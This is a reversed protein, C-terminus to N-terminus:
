KGALTEDIAQLLEVTPFPKALIKNAGLRGAVGIAYLPSNTIGGSMAIIPLKPQKRRLDRIFDLGAEDPMVIDTLILDAPQAAFLRAADRGNAATEVVHGAKSIALSLSELLAVEDDIILIRAM